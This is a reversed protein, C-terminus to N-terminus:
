LSVLRTKGSVPVKLILRYWRYQYGAVDRSSFLQFLLAPSSLLPLVCFRIYCPFFICSCVTVAPDPVPVSIVSLHLCFLSFSHILVLSFCIYPLTFFSLPIDASALLLLFYCLFIPSDMWSFFLFYSCVVSLLSSLCLLRSLFPFLLLSPVFNPLSCSSFSFFIINFSCSQFPLFYFPFM